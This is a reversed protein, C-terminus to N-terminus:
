PRSPVVPTSAPPLPVPAPAPAQIWQVQPERPVLGQPLGRSGYYASIVSAIAVLAPTWYKAARASVQITKLIETQNRNEEHLPATAKEIHQATAERFTTWEHQFESTARLARNAAEDARRSTEGAQRAIRGVEQMESALTQLVGKMAGLEVLISALESTGSSPPMTIAIPPAESVRPFEGPTYLRKEETV